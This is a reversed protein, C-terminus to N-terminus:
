YAVEALMEGGSGSNFAFVVDRDNAGTARCTIAEYGLDETVTCRGISTLPRPATGGTFRALLTPSALCDAMKSGNRANLSAMALRAAGDTDGDALLVGCSPGAPAAGPQADATGGIPTVSARSMAFWHKSPLHECRVGTELSTCQYDAIRIATDYPLVTERDDTLGDAARHWWHAPKSTTGMGPGCADPEDSSPVFCTPIDGRCVFTAGAASVGVIDGYSAYCTEQPDPATWTHERALCGADGEGAQPGPANIWCSLNGSPSVFAAGVASDDRRVDVAPKAVPSAPVSSPAREAKVRPSESSGASPPASADKEECASLVLVMLISLLYAISRFAERPLRTM